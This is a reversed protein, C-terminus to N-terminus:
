HIYKKGFTAFLCLAMIAYVFISAYAVGIAGYNPILLIDLVIQVVVGVFSIYMNFKIQGMSALINAVTFRLGCNFFAAILLIRMLYVINEYQPGYMLLIIPRAFIGLLLCLAGVSLATVCCVYIFKKQIWARDHEHKVFYPCIFTGIATSILSVNGPLVYAVKYDALITPDPCLLGLLFTDNLMFFAWLGNTIMYQISYIDISRKTDEDLKLASAGKYNHQYATYLLIIAFIVNVIIRSFVVGDLKLAYAGIIRCIILSASVGFSIYAFRRNSFLARENLLIADVIYQFIITLVLFDILYRFNSYEVPHPYIHNILIFIAVIGINILCGKNIVYKYYSYKENIDKGLIVYRLMANSLGFGAILYAYSYINEVYGLIGYQEKSLIRIVFISGFFAVFKTFFSGCFIYAAGKKILINKLKRINDM